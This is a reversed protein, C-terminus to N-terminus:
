SWGGGDTSYAAVFDDGIESTGVSVKTFSSSNKAKYYAWATRGNGVVFSILGEENHPPHLNYVHDLSTDISYSGSGGGNVDVYKFKYDQHAMVISDLACLMMMYYTSYGIIYGNNYVAGTQLDIYMATKDDTFKKFTYLREQVIVMQAFNLDTGSSVASFGTAIKTLTGDLTPSTYIYSYYGNSFDTCLWFYVNEGKYNGYLMDKIYSFKAKFEITSWNTGDTTIHLVHSFDSLGGKYEHAVVSGNVFFVKLFGYSKYPNEVSTTKVITWNTGDESSCLYKGNALWFKGLGYTMGITCGNQTSTGIYSADWPVDSCDWEKGDVSTYLKKHNAGVFLSVASSWLKELKQEANVVYAKKLKETTQNAGVVYAKKLKATKSSEVDYIAM